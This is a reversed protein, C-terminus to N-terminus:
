LACMLRQPSQDWQVNQNLPNQAPGSLRANRVLEWSIIVHQQDASWVPILLTRVVSSFSFFVTQNKGKSGGILFLQQESWVVQHKNLVNSLLIMENHALSSKDCVEEKLHSSLWKFALISCASEQSDRFIPVVDQQDQKGKAGLVSSSSLM